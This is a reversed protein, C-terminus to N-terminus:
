LKGIVKLSRRSRSGTLSGMMVYINLTNRLIEMDITDISLLTQSLLLRINGLDEKEIHGPSRNGTVQGQGKGTMLDQSKGGTMHSQGKETIILGQGKETVHDPGPYQGRTEIHGQGQLLNQSRCQGQIDVIDKDTISLTVPRMVDGIPDITHGQGRHHGQCRIDVTDIETQSQIVIRMVGEKLDM